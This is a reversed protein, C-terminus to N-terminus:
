HLLDLNFFNIDAVLKLSFPVPQYSVSKLFEPLCFSFVLPLLVSEALSPFDPALSLSDADLLEVAEFDDSVVEEDPFDSLPFFLM